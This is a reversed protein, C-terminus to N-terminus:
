INGGRSAMGYAASLAPAAGLQMVDVQAHPLIRM